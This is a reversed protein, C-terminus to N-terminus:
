KYGESTFKSIIGRFFNCLYWYLLAKSIENTPNEVEM